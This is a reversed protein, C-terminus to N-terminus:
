SFIFVFVFNLFFICYCPNFWVISIGTWRIILYVKNRQDFTLIFEKESIRYSMIQESPVGHVACTRSFELQPCEYYRCEKSFNQPPQLFSSLSWNSPNRTVEKLMAYEPIIQIIVIVMITILILFTRGSSPSTM